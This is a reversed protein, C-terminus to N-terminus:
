SILAQVPRLIRSAACGQGKEKEEDQLTLNQAVSLWRDKQLRNVHGKM